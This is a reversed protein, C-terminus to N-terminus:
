ISKLMSLIYNGLNTDNEKLGLKKRIEHSIIYKRSNKMYKGIDKGSFGIAYLCCYGIEVNSLSYERLKTVFGPYSVELAALTSEIFEERNNIIADIDARAQKDIKYNDTIAAALISNLLSLRKIIIDKVSNNLLWNQQISEELTNKENELDQYLTLYRENEITKAKLKKGIYFVTASFLVTIVILAIYIRQKITVQELNEIELKYKDEIFQTEHRFIEMDLSDSVHIYLKYYEMAKAPLDLKEYLRSAISYYKVNKIGSLKEHKKLAELAKDYLGIHMYENALTLWKIKETPVRRLYEDITMQTASTSIFARNHSIKAEYYKSLMAINDDTLAKNLSDITANAMTTDNMLLYGNHCSYLSNFYSSHKKGKFYSAAEAMNAVYKDYEFLSHHILGKAYHLRAKTLSDSSKHFYELGKVYYKMASETDGRNECITGAYYCTRLSENGFNNDLFYDIAPQLVSFDRKDIYNKDLAMSHLLAHRAKIERNTLHVEKINELVTLASDPHQEIYSDIDMLLTNLSHKERCGVFILFM